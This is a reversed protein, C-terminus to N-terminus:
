VDNCSKWSSLDMHFNWGFFQGGQQGPYYGGQQGPYYGGQQPYHGGHQPYHGGQYHGGHQPYYGHQGHHHGGQYHGHQGPYHGGHGFRGDIGDATQLSNEQSEEGSPYALAYTVFLAFVILKM